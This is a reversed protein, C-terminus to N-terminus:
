ANQPLVDRKVLKCNVTGVSEVEESCEDSEISLPCGMRLM